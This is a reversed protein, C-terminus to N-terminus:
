EAAARGAIALSCSTEVLYDPCIEVVDALAARICRRTAETPEVLPLRVRASMLGILGLAYKVPSPNSERFLADTLRRHLDGLRRARPSSAAGRLLYIARCLGPAVNSTVSICGDGGQALFAPATADDGAASRPKRGNASSSPSLSRQSPTM